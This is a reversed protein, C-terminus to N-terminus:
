TVCFHMSSDLKGHHMVHYGVIVDLLHLLKIQITLHWTKLLGTTELYQAFFSLQGMATASSKEDWRVSFVGGPTQVRMSLNAQAVVANITEQCAAAVAKVASKSEGM